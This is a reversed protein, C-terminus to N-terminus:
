RTVLSVLTYKSTFLSYLRVGGDPAPQPFAVSDVGLSFYASGNKITQRLEAKTCNQMDKLGRTETNAKRHCRPTDEQITRRNEPVIRGASM